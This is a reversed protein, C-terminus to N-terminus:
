GNQEYAKRLLHEVQVTIQEVSTLSLKHTAQGPGKSPSLAKQDLPDIGSEHVIAVWEELSRGTREKMSQSMAAVMEEPSKSRM